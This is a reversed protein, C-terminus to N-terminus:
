HHRIQFRGAHRHIFLDFWHYISSVYRSRWANIREVAQKKLEIDDSYLKTYVSLWELRNIWGVVRSVEEGSSTAMKLQSGFRGKAFEDM